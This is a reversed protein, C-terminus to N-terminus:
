TTVYGAGDMKQKIGNLAAVNTALLASNLVWSSLNRCISLIKSKYQMRCIWVEAFRYGCNRVCVKTYFKVERL